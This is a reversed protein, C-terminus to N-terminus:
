FVGNKKDMVPSGSLFILKGDVFSADGTEHIYALLANRASNIHYSISDKSIPIYKVGSTTGSTKAFYLPKGPWCVNEEGSVMRDMYTRLAEYDRIPVAAKYQEYTKIASFGHDKGFSTNAAQKLLKQMWYQQWELAKQADSNVKKTVWAAFPRAIWSKIGM